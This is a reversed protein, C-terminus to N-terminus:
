KRYPIGWKVALNAITGDNQMAHIAGSMASQVAGQSSPLMISYGVSGISDGVSVYNSMYQKLLAAPGIFANIKNKDLDLRAEDLGYYRLVQATVNQKKLYDNAQATSLMSGLVGVNKQDLEAITKAIGASASVTLIEDTYYPDTVLFGVVRETKPALFGIACDVSGYKIGAGAGESSIPVFSVPKSSGFVRSIVERAVDADFGQVSGDESAEGFGKVDTRIGIKITEAKAMYSSAVNSQSVLNIIILVAAIVVGFVIALRILGKLDLKFLPEMSFLRRRINRSRIAM